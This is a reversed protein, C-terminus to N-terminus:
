LPLRAPWGAKKLYTDFDTLPPYIARLTPVDADYGVDQFWRFMRYYEEGMAQRFQDWPVQFYTVERGVARSFAAAVQETSRSDGALDLERGLWEERHALALAAFGGIDDVAIQQFQRDPSLPFALKGGLIPDAMMPNEWNDMFFVPRLITHPLDLERVHNEIQWKSEFHPLGTQRQASAVSSYVFHEVGAARAADALRVGQDIERQFGTEWFNQVSFVGYVGELVRDLSARDDLDGQVVEAGQGVLARAAPKSPDRTLARVRFSGDRLLHRAVAGGQHGTAGTVLVIRASSSVM